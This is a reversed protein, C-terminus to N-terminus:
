SPDAGVNQVQPPTTCFVSICTDDVLLFERLGPFYSPANFYPRTAELELWGGEEVEYLWGNGEHYKEWYECLEREELVRFGVPRIFVVRAFQFGEGQIDIVLKEGDFRISRVVKRAFVAAAPLLKCKPTKMKAQSDM